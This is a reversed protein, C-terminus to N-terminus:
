GEVDKPKFRNTYYSPDYTQYYNTSYLISQDPYYVTSCDVYTDSGRLNGYVLPDGGGVTNGGGGGGEGSGGGGGGGGHLLNGGSGVSAGSGSVVTSNGRSRDDSSSVDISTGDQYYQNIAISTPPYLYNRGVLTSPIRYSRAADYDYSYYDGGIATAGAGGGSGGTPPASTASVSPPAPPAGAAAAATTVAVPTTQAPGSTEGHGTVGASPPVGSSIYDMSGDDEVLGGDLGLVTNPTPSIHLDHAMHSNPSLAPTNSPNVTQPGITTSGGMLFSLAHLSDENDPDGFGPDSCDPPTDTAINNLLERAKEEAHLSEVLYLVYDDFMLHLLHFSGFSPASHLTMDRIVRTGFCSWMLLFSHAVKHIAAKNRRAGLLVCREVMAELWESYAELPAGEELLREFESYLNMILEVTVGNTTHKDMSYVTQRTIAELDVQRWDHLMQQTIDPAHLVMRSAQCLHNLSTQRRLMRSFRCALDIKVQRLNHPLDDLAVRLWSDLDHTFKRIVQTLSDPIAQLVSPMLVSCVARYLISDCVGVLNVLVNSGLISVLHPPMGQWFHVLFSQIEDFSARIVTDLIRQCHTRYMMVFTAVKDPAVHPPLLIDKLSPFEPLVTSLKGRGPFLAMQKVSEKKIEGSSNGKKSYHIEYYISGERIAIGYYHYRSQGRTGLRRTTLGPFQQRIIKGFSAANVPQLGKKECFDVYHLYLTNRPICVGEAMEYNEELWMLTAPTSHPRLTRGGGGAGGGGGGGVSTGRGKMGGGTGPETHGHATGNCAENLRAERGPSVVIDGNNNNPLPATGRAGEEGEGAGGRGGGAGGAGGGTVRGVAAVAAEEERRGEGAERGGPHEGGIRNIRREEAGPALNRRGGQEGGGGSAASSEDRDIMATTTNCVRESSIKYHAYSRFDEVEQSAVGGSPAVTTGRLWLENTLASAGLSTANHNLNEPPSSM